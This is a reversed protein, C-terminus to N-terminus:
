TGDLGGGGGGTALSLATGMWALEKVGACALGSHTCWRVCATVQGLNEWKLSGIDGKLLKVGPNSHVSLGSDQHSLGVELVMLCAINELWAPCLSYRM